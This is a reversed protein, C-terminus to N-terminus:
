SYHSHMLTLLRVTPPGADCGLLYYEKSNTHSIANATYVPDLQRAAKGLLQLFRVPILSSPFCITICKPRHEM